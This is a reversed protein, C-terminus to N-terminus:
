PQQRLPEHSLNELRSGPFQELHHALVETMVAHQFATASPNHQAPASRAQRPKEINGIGYQALRQPEGPGHRQCFHRYRQSLGLVRGHEAHHEIAVPCAHRSAILVVPPTRAQSRQERHFLPLCSAPSIPYTLNLSTEVSLPAKGMFDFTDSCSRFVLDLSCSFEGIAASMFFSLPMRMLKLSSARLSALILTIPTPPPPLLATFRIISAPMSPMSNTTALVSRWASRM